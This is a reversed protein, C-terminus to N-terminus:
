RSEAGTVTTYPTAAPSVLPSFGKLTFSNTKKLISKKPQSGFVPSHYTHQFIVLYCTFRSFFLIRCTRHRAHSTLRAFTCLKHSSVDLPHSECSRSWHRQKTVDNSRECKAKADEFYRAGPDGRVQVTKQNERPGKITAGNGWPGERGSRQAM